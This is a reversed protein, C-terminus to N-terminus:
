AGSAAKAKAAKVDAPKPLIRDVGQNTTWALFIVSILEWVGGTPCAVYPFGLSPTCAAIYIAVAVVATAIAMGSQKTEADLGAFWVRFKPIITALVSILGALVTTLLAPSLQAPASTQSAERALATGTGLVVLVAVNFLVIFLINKKM